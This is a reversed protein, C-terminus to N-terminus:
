AREVMVRQRWLSARGGLPELLVHVETSGAHEAVLEIEVALMADMRDSEYGGALVREMGAAPGAPVDLAGAATVGHEDSTLPVPKTRLPETSSSTREIRVSRVRIAGDDIAPGCVRVRAGDCPGGENVADLRLAGRRSLVWPRRPSDMMDIADLSFAAPPEALDTRDLESAGSGLANAFAKFISQVSRQLQSGQDVARDVRACLAAFEADSLESDDISPRAPHELWRLVPAGERRSRRVLEDSRRFSLERAGSPVDSLAPSEIGASRALEDLVHPPPREQDLAALVTGRTTGLLRALEDAGRGDFDLQAAIAGERIVDFCNSTGGILLARDLRLESIWSELSRHDWFWEDLAVGSWGGGCAFVDFSVEGDDALEWGRAEMGAVVIERARDTSAPLYLALAMWRAHVM